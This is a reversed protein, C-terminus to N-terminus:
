SPLPNTLPIASVFIYYVESGTGEALEEAAIYLTDELYQKVEALKQPNTTCTAGVILRQNRDTESTKKQLQHEIKKLIQLYHQRIMENSHIVPIRLYPDNKKWHGDSEVVFQHTVLYTWASQAEIPSIGLRKAIWEFNVFFNQSEVLDLVAMTYWPNVLSMKSSPVEEYVRVSPSLKSTAVKLHEGLAKSKTKWEDIQADILNEILRRQGFEDLELVEILADLRDIPFQKKGSLIQSLFSHSVGLKKAILRLSFKPNRKQKRHISALLQSTFKAHM